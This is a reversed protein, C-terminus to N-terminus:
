SFIYPQLLLWLDNLSDNNNSQLYDADKDIDIYVHFVASGLSLNYDNSNTSFLCSVHLIIVFVCLLLIM